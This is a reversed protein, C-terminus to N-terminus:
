NTRTMLIRVAFAGFIGAFLWDIFRTVRPNARLAASFRDAALIMLGTLPVSLVIFYAGLFALKGSAAPDAVSIFQPLFTVFFLVIKPNLLNIGVGTLWTSFLPQRATRTKELTLASGQRIAQIALWVLYFAGAIKVALFANPSAALLASLGLAAAATHVVIGSTAGLMAAMGAARGQTLARSLFLTMDPGPTVILILAAITFAALVGFSPVFEM